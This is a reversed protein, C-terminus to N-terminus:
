KSEKKLRTKITNASVTSMTDITNAQVAGALNVTANSWSGSVREASLM